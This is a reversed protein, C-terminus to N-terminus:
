GGLTTRLEGKAARKSGIHHMLINPWDAGQNPPVSGPTPSTINPPTNTPPQTIIHTAPQTRPPPAGRICRRLGPSQCDVSQGHVIRCLAKPLRAGVARRGVRGRCSRCPKALWEPSMTVVRADHAEGQGHPALAWGSRTAKKPAPPPPPPPECGHPHMCAMHRM